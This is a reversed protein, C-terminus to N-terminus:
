LEAAKIQLLVLVTQALHLITDLFVQLGALPDTTLDLLLHGISLLDQAELPLWVPRFLHGKLFNGTKIEM